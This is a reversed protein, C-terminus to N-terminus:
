FRWGAARISVNLHSEYIRMNKMGRVVWSHRLRRSDWNISVLCRFLRGFGALQELDTMNFGAWADKIVSWYTKIDVQAIDPAPVGWGATEWDFPLLVIGSSNNRVGVNKPVFDGHVLTEPMTNCFSEVESWRSAIFDCQSLINKLVKVDEDNLAPNALNARIRDCGEHLDHLYSKPGLDGLDPRHTLRSATAHLVGLWQAATVRYEEIRNSSFTKVGVDELFLWCFENKPEAVFGLYTPRSVPLCPLIDEYITRERIAEDRRCRKAVLTTLGNFNIGELRYVASRGLHKHRRQKLAVIANPTSGNRDLQRWFQVAPHNVLDTQLVVNTLFRPM